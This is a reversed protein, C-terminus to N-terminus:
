EFIRMPVSFIVTAPKVHFTSASMVARLNLIDTCRLNSLKSNFLSSRLCSGTTPFCMTAESILKDASTKDIAVASHCNVTERPRFFLNVSNDFSRPFPSMNLAPWNQQMITIRMTIAEFVRIRQIIMCDYHCCPRSSRLTAFKCIRWCSINLEMNEEFMLRLLGYGCSLLGM